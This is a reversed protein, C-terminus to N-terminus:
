PPVTSVISEPPAMRRTQSPKPQGCGDHKGPAHALLDLAVRDVVDVTCELFVVFRDEGPLASVERTGAGAFGEIRRCRSEHAEVHFQALLGATEAEDIGIRGRWQRETSALPIAGAGGIQRPRAFDQGPMHSRHGISKLKSGSPRSITMVAVIMSARPPDSTDSVIRM